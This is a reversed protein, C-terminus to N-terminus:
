LSALARDIDGLPDHGPYQAKLFQLFSEIANRQLSTFGEMKQRYVQVRSAEAPAILGYVIFETITDAAIYDQLSAMMYAPLYYRYAEPTFFCMAESNYRLLDLPIENWHKGQFTAAIENCEVCNCVTINREDPPQADAFAAEIRQRILAAPQQQRETM